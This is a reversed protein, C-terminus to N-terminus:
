KGSELLSAIEETSYVKIKAQEKLRKDNSWIPINLMLALAFYAKDKPDPSIGKARSIFKDIREKSVIRIISLIEELIDEFQNNKRQTKELIEDKHKLIEEKIFEPAFLSISPNILLEATKGEKILSAIVINADVVLKMSSTDRRWTKM